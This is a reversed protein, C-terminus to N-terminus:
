HKYNSFFPMTSKIFPVLGPGLDESFTIGPVKLFISGVSFSKLETGSIGLYPM